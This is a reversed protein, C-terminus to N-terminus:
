SAPPLTFGFTAGQDVVSEAWVRGGHRHVIRQVTALGIGTGPYDASGHLRQFPAFLKAAFAQDFGVGNDRVVFGHPDAEARDFIVRADDRFRTFKVANELLNTLVIDILKADASALLGPAIQVDLRRGPHAERLRSAVRAALSSLDTEARTLPERGVRSFALLDDILVGMRAAEALVRDLHARGPADLLAGSDELLARSWGAIGRLPARLDHSVSYSFAEPEDNMERLQATRADVRQELELNLRQLAREAERRVAEAEKQATLDTFFGVRAMMNGAEDRIATVDAFVPFTSGDRRQHVSEVTRHDENLAIGAHVRAREDQPLLRDVHEGILEAPTFGRARAFAANAATIRGDPTYLAIPVDAQEFVRTWMQATAEIRRLATLDTVFALRSVPRGTEDPISTLDVLVPVTSGDRHRMDAEFINHGTRDAEDILPKLRSQWAEGYAQAISQGAVDAATYGRLRAYAENVRVFRNTAADVLAIGIGAKDFAQQWRRLASTAGDSAPEPGASPGPRPSEDRSM